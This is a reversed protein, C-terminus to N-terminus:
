TYNFKYPDKARLHDVEHGLIICYAYSAHTCLVYMYSAMRLYMLVHLETTKKALRETHMATNMIHRKTLWEDEIKRMMTISVGGDTLALLVYTRIYMNYADAQLQESVAEMKGTPFPLINM